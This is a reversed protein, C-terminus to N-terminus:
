WIFIPPENLGYVTRTAGKGCREARKLGKESSGVDEMTSSETEPPPHFM